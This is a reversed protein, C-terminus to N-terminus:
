AIVAVEFNRGRWAGTAADRWTFVVSDGAKMGKTSIEAVFLGVGTDRTTTEAQSRWGDRTYLVTSAHLLDLRLDRGAPIKAVAFDERWPRCRARQKGRVYRRVTQPPMDFVAGDQLSRL